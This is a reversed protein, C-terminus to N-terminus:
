GPRVAELDALDDGDLEVDTATSSNKVSAIKTAGPIPIVHDGHALLWALAVAYVSTAHKVAIRALAPERALRRHGYHGGVPSYPVYAIGRAACATVLGTEFDLREYLNCRNQVAAIPTLTLAEELQGAAVNSLGIAAIKGEDKLRVLEGLSEAFPVTPDVAHLYYLDLPEGLVLASRECCRRLWRPDCDVEWRGGPRTLGGKTAVLVDDRRLERLATAILRENHGLDDNDLCYTIATDIFDGGGEVFTRIVELATQRDPRGQISLPMAGLGIANVETGTSGVRRRM